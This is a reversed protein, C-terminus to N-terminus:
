RTTMSPAKRLQCVTTSCASCNEGSTTTSTSGSAAAWACAASLAAPEVVRTSLPVSASAAVSVVSLTCMTMAAITAVAEAFAERDREMAGIRHELDACDKLGARLDDLAKLTQRM